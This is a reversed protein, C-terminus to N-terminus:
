HLPQGDFDHISFAIQHKFGGMDLGIIGKRIRICKDNRQRLAAITEPYPHGIGIASGHKLARDALEFLRDRIKLADRENDLFVDRRGVPVGLRLGTDYATTHPTTRSDIFFLGRSKIEEMVAATKGANETFKSGMHNNVGEVGPIAELDGRLSALLKDPADAVRLAGPGPRYDKSKPELPLHLMVVHGRRKATLAVTKSYPLHPLVAFAIPTDLRFLKEASVMDQGMDDIIIAVAPGPGGPPLLPKRTVNGEDTMEVEEIVAGPKPATAAATEEIKEEGQDVFRGALVVYIAAVVCVFMAGLFLEVGYTSLFTPPKKKKPARKRKGGRPSAM